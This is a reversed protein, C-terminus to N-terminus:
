ATSIIEHQQHDLPQKSDYSNNWLHHSWHQNNRKQPTNDVTQDWSGHFHTRQNQSENCITNIQQTTRKTLDSNETITDVM